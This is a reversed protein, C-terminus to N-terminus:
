RRATLADTKAKSGASSGFYYAVIGSWTTGLSGILIMLFQSDGTPVGHILLWALVGFFGLTVVFALAAPTHDRVAIERARASDRDAAHIRELDIGLEALRTELATEAQKIALLQEPTAATIAKALQTESANDPLGLASAVAQMALPAFPGGIATAVTPAITGLISKAANWISM